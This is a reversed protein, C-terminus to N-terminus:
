NSFSRNLGFKPIIAFQQITFLTCHNRGQWEQNLLQIILYATFYWKSATTCLLNLIVSSPFSDVFLQIYINEIIIYM